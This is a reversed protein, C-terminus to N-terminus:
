CCGKRRNPIDQRSFRIRRGMTAPNLAGNQKCDEVAVAYVKAYCRDPILALTDQMKGESNWMKGGSRIMAPMSADVIVDSPVHLNTVGKDSDVMALPAETKLTKQIDGLIVSKQNEDLQNIRQIMAGLGHNPNIGAKTFADSHNQFVSEFYARVAAGFMIPDSVKMMTAKLHLSLLVGEEKAKQIQTKYFSVLAAYSMCSADIIEGDLLQLNKKLTKQKGSASEFEISVSTAKPITVSQESGYFDGSEMHAVRTKSDKKWEGMSHPYKKAYTKV